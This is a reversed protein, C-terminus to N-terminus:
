LYRPSNFMSPTVPYVKVAGDLRPDREHRRVVTVRYLYPIWRWLSVSVGSKERVFSLHGPDNLKVTFRREGKEPHSPDALLYCDYSDSVATLLMRGIFEGSPVTDDVPSAMIINYSVPLADPSSRRSSREVLITAGEGTFQWLGEVPVPGMRDIRTKLSDLDSTSTGATLALLLALLVSLARPM